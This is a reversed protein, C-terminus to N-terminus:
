SCHKVVKNAARKTYLVSYYQAAAVTREAGKPDAIPLSHCFQAKPV